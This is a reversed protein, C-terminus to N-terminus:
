GARRIDRWEQRGGDVRRPWNDRVAERVQNAHPRVSWTLIHPKRGNHNIAVFAIDQPM